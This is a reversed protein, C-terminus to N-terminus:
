DGEPKRVRPRRVAILVCIAASIISIVVGGRWSTPEFRLTVEHRGASVFVAGMAHDAPVVDQRRGDVSATWGNQIADAVVLYGAGKALVEVQIEDGVDRLTTVRATRGSTELGPRSLVVADPSVGKALARVQRFPDPIVISHRAWRIRPLADMRRYVVVGRGFVLKLGDRRAVVVSVAPRGVRDARILLVDSTGTLSLRVRYPGQARRTEENPVVPIEFRGTSDSGVRRTGTASVAGSRDLLEARIFARQGPAQFRRVIDVAVARIRGSPIGTVLESGRGLLATAPGSRAQIRRGLVPAQPPNVFYRVSARDLVPSTVVDQSTRLIPYTPGTPRFATPDAAEIIGKWPRSVFSHSTFARLGYFTTTGPHMAKGGLALRDEGLNRQVFEHAPTSPYFLESPVRPWFPLVFALSEAAIAVPVVWVFLPNGLVKVKRRLAIAGLVAAGAMLPIVSQKAVYRRQHVQSILDWANVAGVLFVAGVGILPLVSWWTRRRSAGNAALLHHLGAAALISLVVGLMSRLRGIFNLGFVPVAQLLNLPPGGVYILLIAVVAGIALFPFLGEAMGRFREKPGRIWAVLCAVILILATTSIFSQLEQYNLVVYSTREYQAGGFYNGDAPSGFANPIAMTLLARLPLHSGPAQERYTLDLTGLQGVWPLLQLAVLGTGLTVSVGFVGFVRLRELLTSPRVIIRFLFFAASLMLAYVTVPPFGELWMAGVIVTVPLASRLTRRQVVRETAWLLAPTFAGIHSHPWNTWVVQFGSNVYILGGVLAAVSRFGLSRLFLFMFVIAIAMELLKAAAPAYWLPLASYLVNFLSLSGNTPVAALPIGGSPYRNWLAFDGQLLRRRYEARNPMGANVPDELIPNIRKFGPASDHFWPPEAQLLDAPFFTRMGILPLGISLCVTAAAVVAGWRFPSWKARPVVRKM